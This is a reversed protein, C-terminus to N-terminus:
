NLNDTNNDSDTGNDSVNEKEFLKNKIADELEDITVSPNEQCKKFIYMFEKGTITENRFLFEAILDLSTRNESILRKANEYCEELLAKIENDIKTETADSVNSVTRGELYQDQVTELGM